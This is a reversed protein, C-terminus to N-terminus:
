TASYGWCVGHTPHVRNSWSAAVSSPEVFVVLTCAHERVSVGDTIINCATVSLSMQLFTCCQWYSHTCVQALLVALITPLWAQAEMCADTVSPTAAPKAWVGACPGAVVTLM